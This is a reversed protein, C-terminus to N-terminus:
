RVAGTANDVVQCRLSYGTGLDLDIARGLAALAVSKMAIDVVFQVAAASPERKLTMVADSSKVASCLQALDVKVAASM